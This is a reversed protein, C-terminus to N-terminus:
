MQYAYPRFSFYTLVKDQRRISNRTPKPKGMPLPPFLAQLLRVSGKRFKYDVLVEKSTLEVYKSDSINTKILNWLNDRFMKFGAEDTFEFLLILFLEKVNFDAVVKQKDIYDLNLMFVNVLRKADRFNAIYDMLYIKDESLNMELNNLQNQLEVGYHTHSQLETNFLHTLLYGEYQPFMLELQFIKKLYEDPKKIQDQLSQLM